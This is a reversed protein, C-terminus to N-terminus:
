SALPEEPLRAIVSVMVRARITAVAGDVVAAYGGTLWEAISDARQMAERGGCMFIVALQNQGWRGVIDRPRM